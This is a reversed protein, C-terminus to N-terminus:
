QLIVIAFLFQLALGWIVPRLRVKRRNVSMGWAIALLALMGLISILRM